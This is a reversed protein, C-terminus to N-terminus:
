LAELNPCFKGYENKRFEAAVKAAELKDEFYGLSILKGDKFGSAQWKGYPKNWYVGRQGSINKQNRRNRSNEVRTAVRLNSIRNDARDGNIHDIFSDGVEGNVAIWALRHTGFAKGEIRIKIYGTLELCGALQGVKIRGNSSVKWRFEGSDPDYQLYELVKQQSIHNM